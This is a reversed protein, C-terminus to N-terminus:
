KAEMGSSYESEPTDSGEVVFDEDEQLLKKREVVREHDILQYPHTWIRSMIHYNALLDRYLGNKYVFDLFFKYLDIQKPTLRVYIVYEQKTPITEILVRFDRRNVVGRLHEFLVHCRRKM